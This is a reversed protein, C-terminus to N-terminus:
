SFNIKFNGGENISPEESAEIFATNKDMLYM